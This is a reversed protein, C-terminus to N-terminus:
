RHMAKRKRQSEVQRACSESVGTFVESPKSATMDEWTLPGWARGKNLQLGAGMCRYGWSGSQSRNIVKGGDYKSRIHMWSEAINTTFNGLLQSAKAVLRSVLAQVDHLLQQSVITHNQEGRRCDTETAPDDVLTERWLTEQDVTYM